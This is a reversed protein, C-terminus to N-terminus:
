FSLDRKINPKKPLPPFKFEEDPPGLCYYSPHLGRSTLAIGLPECNLVMIEKKPEKPQKSSQAAAVVTWMGLVVGVLLALLKNM